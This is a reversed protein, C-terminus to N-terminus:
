ESLTHEVYMNIEKVTELLTRTYSKVITEKLLYDFTYESLMYNRLMELKPAIVTLLENYDKLKYLERERLKEELRKKFKSELQEIM